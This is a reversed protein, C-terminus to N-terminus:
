WTGSSVCQLSSVTLFRYIKLAQVPCFARRFSQYQLSQIKVEESFFLQIMIISMHGPLPKIATVKLTRIIRTEYRDFAESEKLDLTPPIRHGFRVLFCVGLTLAQALIWKWNFIESEFSWTWFQIQLFCLKKPNYPASTPFRWNSTIKPALTSTPRINKTVNRVCSGVLGRNSLFRLM